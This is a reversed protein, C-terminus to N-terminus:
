TGGDAGFNGCAIHRKRYNKKAIFKGHGLRFVNLSVPEMSSVIEPLVTAAAHISQAPGDAQGHPM